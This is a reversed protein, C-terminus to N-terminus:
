SNDESVKVLVFLDGRDSSHVVPVGMGALRFLRNSETGAPIKLITTKGDLTPVKAEDGNAAQKSSIPLEYLVDTGQRKFFSHPKVTLAVYLNGPTGGRASVDGAGTVRVNIGNGVGAPINVLERHHNRVRKQGRCKECLMIIDYGAGQCQDCIIVSTYSSRPEPSIKGTGQCGLCAPTETGPQAGSGECHTCIEWRLLEIEKECGFVAEEFTITLEYRMDPGRALEEDDDAEHEGNIDDRNDVDNEEM